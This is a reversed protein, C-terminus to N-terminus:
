VYFRVLREIEKTLNHIGLIFVKDREIQLWLVQLYQRKNKIECVQSYILKVDITEAQCDQGSSVASFM